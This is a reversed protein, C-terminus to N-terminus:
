RGPDGDFDPNKSKRIIRDILDRALQTKILAEEYKSEDLDKHANQQLQKIREFLINNENEPDSLKFKQEANDILEDLLTMEEFARLEAKDAKGQALNLARLLLRTSQHYYDIAQSHQGNLKAEEAKKALELARNKIRKVTQNQSEEIVDKNKSYFQDFRYAEDTAQQGVSKDSDRALDISKKVLFNARNYHFMSKKLESNRATEIALSKNKKGRELFGAAEANSSKPVIDDAKEILQNLQKMRRKFPERFLIKLAQNVEQDARKLLQNAIIPRRNRMQRGARRLSIEASTLLDEVQRDKVTSQIDRAFELRNRIERFKHPMTQRRQTHGQASLIVIILITLLSYTFLKNNM